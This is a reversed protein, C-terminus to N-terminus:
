WRAYYVDEQVKVAAAGPAAGLTSHDIEATEAISVHPYETRLLNMLDGGASHLLGNRPYSLYLPSKTRAAAGIFAKMADVVKSRQSFDTTFRGARYRGKGTVEPYDYLVLTELLHYYRSYQARSYPPDAYIVATGGRLMSPLLRLFATADQRSVANSSRDLCPPISLQRLEKLFVTWISRARM